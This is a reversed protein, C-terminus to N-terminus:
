NAHNSDHIKEGQFYSTTLFRNQVWHSDIEDSNKNLVFLVPFMSRKEFTKKELHAGWPYDLCLESNERVLILSADGGLRGLITPNLPLSFSGTEDASLELTEESEGTKHIARLSENPLFGDARLDFRTLMPHTVVVSAHAGDESRAEIPYPIFEATSVRMTEKSAIAYIVPKAALLGEAAVFPIERETRTGNRDFILVEGGEQMEFEFRPDIKETLPDIVAFIFREGLPINQGKLLLIPFTGKSTSLLDGPEVTLAFTDSPQSEEVIWANRVTNFGAKKVTLIETIHRQQNHTCGFVLASIGLILIKYKM